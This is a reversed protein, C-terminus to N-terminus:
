LSNKAYQGLRYDSQYAVRILNLRATRSLHLNKDVTEVIVENAEEPSIFDGLSRLANSLKSKLWKYSTNLAKNVLDTLNRVKSLGKQLIMQAKPSNRYVKYAIYASTIIALIWPASHFLSSLFPTQEPYLELQDGIAQEVIEPNQHIENLRQAEQQANAEQQQRILIQKQREEEQFRRNAKEIIAATDSQVENYVNQTDSLISIENIAISNGTQISSFAVTADVLTQNNSRKATKYNNHIYSYQLCAQRLKHGNPLYYSQKVLTNLVNQKM